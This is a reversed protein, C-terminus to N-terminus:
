TMNVNRSQINNNIMEQGMAKSAKTRYGNTQIIRKGNLIRPIATPPTNARM